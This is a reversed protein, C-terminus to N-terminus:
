GAACRHKTHFFSARSQHCRRWWSWSLVLIASQPPPWLLYALLHRVEPITLPLLPCTPPTGQKSAPEATSIRAKACIGALCAQALMVLTIHRYWATFGRVEYDELGMEKGTEFCEEIKWRAGIAKVMEALTTGMPAFVFYYTKEEQDDLCRRILLFHQGDEEWRHLMPMVAWDFQRPGKTGDSMSLRQWDEAHFSLAEAQAVTMRKRGEPTQIGVPEDCAVALVYSYQHIELFARLDGNGGYVTDAVVWAFPIRARWLREIMKRALECKTQFRVTAPIGAERCRKRDKIWRMPLYLERDLLTHGKASAYALFVGVQCNELHGTTGCHQQAVGASKKGRKRVSTEDIILIAQPDGLQELIYARLDDRVLDADWVASGLLRQMGDPRAEGAHEALQWGNKRPTSSVIGQLYALARRRPEPRAFRPAIRSHLRELEQGWKWVDVFTTKAGKPTIQQPQQMQKEKQISSEPSHNQGKLM